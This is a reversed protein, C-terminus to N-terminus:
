SRPEIAPLPYYFPRPKRRSTPPLSVVVFIFDVEQGSKTRWFNISYDIGHYSSHALMELYIFHELEEM